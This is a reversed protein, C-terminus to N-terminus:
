SCPLGSHPPLGFPVPLCLFLSVLPSCWLARCLFLLWLSISVFAPFPLPFSAPFILSPFLPLQVASFLDKIIGKFVCYSSLDRKLKKTGRDWDSPPTHFILSSSTFSGRAQMSKLLERCLPALPFPRSVDM